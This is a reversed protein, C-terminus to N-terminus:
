DKDEANAGGSEDTAPKADKGTEQWDSDIRTVKVETAILQQNTGSGERRGVVEVKDGVKIDKMSMVRGNIRVVTENTYTGELSFSTGDKKTTAMVVKRNALDISKVEGKRTSTKGAKGKSSCGTQAFVAILLTALAMRRISLKLM